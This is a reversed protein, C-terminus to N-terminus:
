KTGMKRLFYVSRELFFLLLTTLILLRIEQYNSSQLYQTYFLVDVDEERSFSRFCISKAGVKDQDSVIDDPVLEIIENSSWEIKDSSRNVSPIKIHQYAASIDHLAFFSAGTEEQYIEQNIENVPVINIIWLLLACIVSMLLCAMMSINTAKGGFLRNRFFARHRFAGQLLKYVERCLLVFFFLVIETLFFSRIMQLNEAVLNKTYFCLQQGLPIIAAMYGWSIEEGGDIPSIEVVNLGNRHQSFDPQRQVWVMGKKVDSKEIPSAYRFRYETFSLDHWEFYTSFKNPDDGKLDIVNEKTADIEQEVCPIQSSLFLLHCFYCFLAMVVIVRTTRILLVTKNSLTM